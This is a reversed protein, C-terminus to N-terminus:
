NGAHWNSEPLRNRKKKKKSRWLTEHDCGYRPHGEKRCDLRVNITTNAMWRICYVRWPVWPRWTHAMWEHRWEIGGYRTASFTYDKLAPRGKITRRIQSVVAFSRVLFFFPMSPPFACFCFPPSTQSCNNAFSPALSEITYDSSCSAFCLPM